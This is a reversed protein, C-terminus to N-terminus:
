NVRQHCFLNFTLLLHTKNTKYLCFNLKYNNHVDDYNSKQLYKENNKPKIKSFNINTRIKPVDM